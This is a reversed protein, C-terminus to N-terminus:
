IIYKQTISGFLGRTVMEEDNLAHGSEVAQFNFHPMRTISSSPIM